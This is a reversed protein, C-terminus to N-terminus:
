GRAVTAAHVSVAGAKKLVEACESLTSGTTLVDDVLLVRLDRVVGGRRLRFAGALNQIREQRDFQTQTTTYRIRQLLSRVPLHVQHGLLKALIEAQNFGRERERAPHLPVPIICDFRRGALRPDDLAEGLWSALPKRLHLFGHYKFDHMVERIVGRSRYASVAADFHLVRDHCNACTFSDTIAGAFPQSCRECFPARLRPADDVCRTCLQAGPEIATACVACAAPYLLSVLGRFPNRALAPM